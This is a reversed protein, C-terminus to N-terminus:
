KSRLPEWWKQNNKYWDITDVIGKSFDVEPHYGLEIQAKSWDVSYRFDHGQRDTIYKIKEEGLGFENLIISTLELNSMEEGGGINYIEGSKGNVLALAIGRCHDSVHLWDRINKGDGYVPVDEGNIINTIFLPIIKEPFQNPGYNNSCRTTVTDVGFTKHFSRVILDGSAKSASYPSNPELPSNERWTGSSISGYVEDTSVQLFRIKLKRCEELLIRVGEINTQIFASADSISRDVHSEAAFNIVADVGSCASAVDNPNTIDGVILEFKESKSIPELNSRLGSYTFSDLIRTSIIEKFHGEIAMKVFHSGIFGAGGTVLVRM